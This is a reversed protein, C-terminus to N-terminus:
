TVGILQIISENLNKLSIRKKCYKKFLTVLHDSYLFLMTTKRILDMIDKKPKFKNIEQILDDGSIRQNVHSNFLYYLGLHGGEFLGFRISSLRLSKRNDNDQQLVEILTQAHGLYGIMYDSKKGFLKEYICSLSNLKYRLYDEELSMKTMKSLLGCDSCNLSDTSSEQDGSAGDSEDSGLSNSFSSRSTDGSIDDTDALDELSSDSTSLILNCILLNISIFCAFFVFKKM